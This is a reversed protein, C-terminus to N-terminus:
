ARLISPEATFSTTPLAQAISESDDCSVHSLSYRMSILAWMRKATSQFRTAWKVEGGGKM